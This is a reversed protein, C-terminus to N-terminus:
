GFTVEPCGDPRGNREPVPTGREGALYHDGMGAEGWSARETESCADRTERRPLPRGYEPIVTPTRVTQWSSATIPTPTLMKKRASPAMKLNAISGSTNPSLTWMSTMPRMKMIT